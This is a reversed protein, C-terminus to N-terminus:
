NSRVSKSVIALAVLRQKINRDGSEDYIGVLTALWGQRKREDTKDAEAYAEVADSIRTRVVDSSALSALAKEIKTLSKDYVKLMSMSWEGRWLDLRVRHQEAFMDVEDGLVSKLRAFLIQAKAAFEDWRSNLLRKTRDLQDSGLGTFTSLAGLLSGDGNLIAVYDSRLRRTPDLGVLTKHWDTAASKEILVTGFGVLGLIGTKDVSMDHRKTSAEPPSADRSWRVYTSPTPALSDKEIKGTVPHIPNFYLNRTQEESLLSLQEMTFEVPRLGVFKSRPEPEKGVEPVWASFVRWGDITSDKSLVTSTSERLFSMAGRQGIYPRQDASWVDGPTLAEGAPNIGAVFIFRPRVNGTVLMREMFPTTDRVSTGLIAQEFESFLQVMSGRSYLEDLEVKASSAECYDAIAKASFGGYRVRGPAEPLSAMFFPMPSELTDNRALTSYIFSLTENLTFRDEAPDSDAGGIYHNRVCQALAAPWAVRHLAGEGAASVLANNFRDIDYLPKNTAPPLFKTGGTLEPAGEIQGVLRAAETEAPSAAGALRDEAPFAPAGPPLYERRSLLGVVHTWQAPAAPNPLAKSSATSSTQSVWNAMRRLAQELPPAASELKGTVLARLLMDLARALPGLTPTKSRLLLGVLAVTPETAGYVLMGVETALAKVLAYGEALAKDVGIPAFREALAWNPVLDQRGLDGLLTLGEPKSLDAIMRGYTRGLAICLPVSYNGAKWIKAIWKGFSVSDGRKSADRHRRAIAQVSAEVIQACTPRGVPTAKEGNITNFREWVGPKGIALFETVAITAGHMDDEPETASPTLLAMPRSYEYAIHASSGGHWWNPPIHQPSAWIALAPLGLTLVKGVAIRAAEIRALASAVGADVDISALAIGPLPIPRVGLMGACIRVILQYAKSPVDIGGMAPLVENVIGRYILGDRELREICEELTTGLQVFRLEPSPVTSGAEKIMVSDWMRRWLADVARLMEAEAHSVRVNGAEPPDGPASSAAGPLKSSNWRTKSRWRYTDGGVLEFNIPDDVVYLYHRKRAYACWGSEGAVMDVFARFYDEVVAAREKITRFAVQLKRWTTGGDGGLAAPEKTAAIIACDLYRKRIRDFVSVSDSPKESIAASLFDLAADPTPAYDFILVAEAANEAAARVRRLKSRTLINNMSRAPVSETLVDQITGATNVFINVQQKLIVEYAARMLKRWELTAANIAASLAPAVEADTSPWEVGRIELSPRRTARQTQEMRALLAEGVADGRMMSREIIEIEELSTALQQRLGNSLRELTEKDAPITSRQASSQLTDVSRRQRPDNLAESFTSWTILADIYMVQAENYADKLTPYWPVRSLEEAFSVAARGETSITIALRNTAIALTDRAEKALRETLRMSEAPTDVPAADWPQSLGLLDADITKRGLEVVDLGKRYHSRVRNYENLLRQYDAYISDYEERRRAKALEILDVLDPGGVAAPKKPAPPAPAPKIVVVPLVAGPAAPKKAAPKKAAVIPEPAEPIFIVPAELPPPLRSRANRELLAHIGNDLEATSEWLVRELGAMPQYLSPAATISDLRRLRWYYWQMSSTKGHLKNRLYFSACEQFMVQGNPQRDSKKAWCAAYVLEYCERLWTYNIRGDVGLFPRRELLGPFLGIVQELNPSTIVADMSARGAATAPQLLQFHRAYGPLKSPYIRTGIPPWDDPNLPMRFCFRAVLAGRIRNQIVASIWRCQDPGGFEPLAWWSFEEYARVGGDDPVPAAMETGRREDPDSLRRLVPVPAPADASAVVIFVHMFILVGPIQETGTFGNSASRATRPPSWVGHPSNEIVDVILYVSGRSLSLPGMVSAVREPHHLSPDELFLGLVADRSEELNWADTSLGMRRILQEGNASYIYRAPRVSGRAFKDIQHDEPQVITQRTASRILATRTNGVSWTVSSRGITERPANNHPPPLERPMYDRVVYYRETTWKNDDKSKRQYQELVISSGYECLDISRDTAFVVAERILHLAAEVIDCASDRRAEASERVREFVSLWNPYSPTPFLEVETLWVPRPTPYTAPDLWKDEDLPVGVPAGLLVLLLATPAEFPPKRPNPNELRNFGAVYDGFLPDSLLVRLQALKTNLQALLLALSEDGTANLSETLRIIVWRLRGGGETPSRSKIVETPVVEPDVSRRYLYIERFPVPPVPPPADAM